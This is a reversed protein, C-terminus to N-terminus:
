DEAVTFGQKQLDAVIWQQLKPAIEVAKIEGAVAQGWLDQLQAFAGAWNPGYTWDGLQTEVATTVAPEWDKANDGVLATPVTDEVYHKPDKVAPFYGLGDQPSALAAVSDDHTSLWHAAFVAAEPNDSESDVAFVRTFAANAPESGEWHLNPQPDWAGLSKKLEAQMGVTQWTSLQRAAIAGKDYEQMMASYEAYSIKSFLDADFGEDFYEAARKTADSDVDVHWTDDKLTYWRAGAEWAMYLFATPDEGAVNFAHIGKKRLTKGVELFEEYTTPFELGNAKFVQANYLMFTPIAAAPVAWESGGTTVAENVVDSYDGSISDYYPSLDEAIGDSIFSALDASQTIFLDPAKGAAHANRVGTLLDTTEKFEIQIGQDAHEKNFLEVAPELKANDHWLQVTTKDGSWTDGIAVPEVKPHGDGQGTTGGGCATLMGAAVIGVIAAHLRTTNRM